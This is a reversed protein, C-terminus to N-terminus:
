PQDRRNTRLVHAVADDRLRTLDREGHQALEIIRLALAERMTDAPLHIGNGSALVSQWAGDFAKSMVDATEPDFLNITEAPVITRM